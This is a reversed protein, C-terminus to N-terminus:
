ETLGMERDLRREYAEIAKYLATRSINFLRAIDTKDTGEDLLSIILDQRLELIKKRDVIKPM